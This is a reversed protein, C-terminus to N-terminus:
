RASSSVSAALSCAIRKRLRRPKAGLMRQSAHPSSAVHADHETASVNWLRAPASDAAVVAVELRRQPAVHACHSAGARERELPEAGLLELLRERAANGVARTARRSRSTALPLVCRPAHERPHARALDVDEDARLHDGLAVIQRVHREHADDVGVGRQLM